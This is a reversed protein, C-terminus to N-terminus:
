MILSGNNRRKPVTQKQWAFHKDTNCIQWAFVIAKSQLRDELKDKFDSFFGYGTPNRTDIRDKLMKYMIVPM